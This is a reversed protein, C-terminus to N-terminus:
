SAKKKGSHKYMSVYDSALRAENFDEQVKVVAAANIRARAEHSNYATILKNRVEEVESIGTVWGLDNRKVYPALGVHESVLVPTGVALSELVVMAFNENHSTLAFLDSGALFAFKEEKDKWGAWEVKDDLGLRAILARLEALYAEDGSGAIKLLFPFEVKSLAQLLIDLGKKPHIRSFFSITFVENAKRQYSGEPLSVLNHIIENDWNNNIRLCDDREMDSTTHLYTRRLLHKGLVNHLIKKSLKNRHNFVFDCLVGRPSLVPRIGRISCILSAGMVLFNWWSHIHVVDYDNATAWTTSWLSPSVHTHDKTIRPFYKVEVGNVVQTEKVPVDLEQEGNATTTYVMVRHGLNALGEALKSVSIIPGGYIYAPKYSPVIFLIKM